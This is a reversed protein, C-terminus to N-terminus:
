TREGYRKPRRVIHRCTKDFAAVRRRKAVDPTHRSDRKAQPLVIGDSPTQLRSKIRRFGPPPGTHLNETIKRVTSASRTATPRSTPSRRRSTQRHRRARGRFRRWRRWRRRRWRRWRWGRRRRRRAEPRRERLDLRVDEVGSQLPSDSLRCRTPRGSGPLRLSNRSAPRYESCGPSALKSRTSGPQRVVAVQNWFSSPVAGCCLHRRACRQRLRLDVHDPM